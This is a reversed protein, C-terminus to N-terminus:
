RRPIIETELNEMVQVFQAGKGRVQQAQVVIGKQGCDFALDEIEDSPTATKSTSVSCNTFGEDRLHDLMLSMTHALSYASDETEWYRVARMLVGNVFSLSGIVFHHGTKESVSWTDAVDGGKWPNLEFHESLLAITLDKHMGLTVRAPAFEIYGEPPSAKHQATANSCAQLLLFGIFVFSQLSSKM